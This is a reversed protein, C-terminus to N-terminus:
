RQSQSLVLKKKNIDVYCVAINLFTKFWLFFFFFLVSAHWFTGFGKYSVFRVLLIKWFCHRCKSLNLLWSHPRASGFINCCSNPWKPMSISLYFVVNTNVKASWSPARRGWGSSPAPRCDALGTRHPWVRPVRRLCSPSHWSPSHWDKDDKTVVTHVSVSFINSSKGQYPISYM